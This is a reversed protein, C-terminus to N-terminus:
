CRWRSSGCILGCLLRVCWRLATVGGLLWLGSLYGWKWGSYIRTAVGYLLGSVVVIQWELFYELVRRPASSMLDTGESIM